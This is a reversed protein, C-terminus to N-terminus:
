LDLLNYPNFMKKLDNLPANIREKEELFQQEFKKIIPYYTKFVHEKFLREGNTNCGLISKSKKMIESPTLHYKTGDKRYFNTRKRVEGKEDRYNYSRTFIHCYSDRFYKILFYEDDNIEQLMEEVMKVLLNYRKDLVQLQQKKAYNLGENSLEYIVIFYARLYYVDLVTQASMENNLVFLHECWRHFTYDNAYSEVGEFADIMEEGNKIAM